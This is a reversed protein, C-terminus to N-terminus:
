ALRFETKAEAFEGKRIKENFETILESYSKCYEPSEKEYCDSLDAIQFAFCEILTKLKPKRWKDRVASAKIKDKDM